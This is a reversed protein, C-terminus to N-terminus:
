PSSRCPTPKGQQNFQGYDHSLQFVPGTWGPPPGTVASRHAPERAPSAPAASPRSEPAAGAAALVAAAAAIPLAFLRM